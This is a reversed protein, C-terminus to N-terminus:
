IARLRGHGSTRTHARAEPLATAVTNRGSGKSRYLASDAAAVVDGATPGGTEMSSVGASVTVVNWPENKEHPLGLDEIGHCIRGAVNTGESMSTDRLLVLFEEGGYRYVRDEPRVESQIRQAVMRLVEDGATHGLLDNYAKFHDIDIMIVSSPRGGSTARKWADELDPEMVMRNYAGTLADHHAAVELNGAAIELRRREKSLTTVLGQLSSAEANLTSVVLGADVARNLAPILRSDYIPTALGNYGSAVLQDIEAARAATNFERSNGPVIWEVEVNCGELERAAQYVGMRVPDWFAGDDIGIVAIRVHKKSPGLPRARREKMAPNDVAGEGPRWFLRINERTVIESRTILRPEVPQWGHAVANFLHITTDHGQGFPDQTVVASILGRELGEATKELIDHGVIAVKGAFPTGDLAHAAAIAGYAETSYIASLTPHAKVFKAVRRATRAVHTSSSAFESPVIGIINLSQFRERVMSEFGRRRLEVGAHRLDPSLMLVEGGSPLLGALVEACIGGLLYDDAGVYFLRHCPDVAAAEFQYIGARLRYITANLAEAARRVGPDAPLVVQQAHVTLKGPPDGEALNVFEDVLAMVDRAALIEMSTSIRDLPKDITFRSVVRTITVGVIVGVSVLLASWGLVSHGVAFATASAVLGLAGVAGGIFTGAGIPLLFRGSPLHWSGNASRENIQKRATAEIM